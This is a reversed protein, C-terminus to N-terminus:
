DDSKKLWSQKAEDIDEESFRVGKWLGKLPKREVGEKRLLAARLESLEVELEDIRGLASKLDTETVM